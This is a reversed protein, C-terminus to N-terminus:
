TETDTDRSPPGRARKSELFRRLSEALDREAFRALGARYRDPDPDTVPDAAPRELVLEAIGTTEGTYSFGARYLAEYAYPNNVAIAIREYGANRARDVTAGVLRPGIGEGRRDERVTVYRLWLRDPDTRDESFAVAAVVGDDRWVAKGTTGMVFKGAYAFREHDLDLTPGDPPWGLLEFGM